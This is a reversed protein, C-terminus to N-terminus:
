FTLFLVTHYLGKNRDITISLLLPEKKEIVSWSCWFLGAGPQVKKDLQDKSKRLSSRKM